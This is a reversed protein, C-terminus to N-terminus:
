RLGKQHTLHSSRQDTSISCVHENLSNFFVSQVKFVTWVYFFLAKREIFGEGFFTYFSTAIVFESNHYLFNRKKIGKRFRAELFHTKIKHHM